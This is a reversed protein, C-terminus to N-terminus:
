VGFMAKTTLATFKRICQPCTMKGLLFSQGKPLWGFSNKGPIVGCLSKDQGVPVIHIVRGTKGLSKAEVNYISFSSSCSSSSFTPKDM